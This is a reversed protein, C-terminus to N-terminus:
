WGGREADLYARVRAIDNPAGQLMVDLASKGAFADNARKIWAYARKVDTFMYRLAKHIGLLDGLRFITDNPLPGIQGARWRQFTRESPGGLLVLKEDTQLGWKDFLNLVARLMAQAEAETVRGHAHAPPRIPIPSVPLARASM